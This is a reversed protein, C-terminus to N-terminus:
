ANVHTQTSWSLILDLLKTIDKETHECNITIRLRSTNKPVTPPRIGAVFFGEKALDACLAMTMAADKLVLSQIATDSPLLVIQRQEAQDKFFQIREHLQAVRWSENEFLSLSQMAVLALAPPLATSYIYPRAFQILTEIVTKDGLVMAGYCGLAKGFPCVLVLNKKPSMWFKTFQGARKKGLVGVGHADDIILMSQHAQAITQLEQLPAVDGDM